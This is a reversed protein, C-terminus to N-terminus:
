AQGTEEKGNEISREIASIVNDSLVEDGWDRPKGHFMCCHTRRVNAFPKYFSCTHCKHHLTKSCKRKIGEFIRQMLHPHYSQPVYWESVCYDEHECKMPCCDNRLCEICNGHATSCAHILAELKIKVRSKEKTNVRQPIPYAPKPPEPEKEEVSIAFTAPVKKM